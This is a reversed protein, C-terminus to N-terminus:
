RSLLPARTRGPPGAPISTTVKGCTGADHGPKATDTSRAALPRPYGAEAQRRALLGPRTFHALGKMRIDRAANVDRDQVHGCHVCAYVRVALTLRGLPMGGGTCEDAEWLIRLKYRVSFRRRRARPIVETASAEPTGYPLTTTDNKM